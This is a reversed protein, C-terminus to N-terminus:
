KTPTVEVTFAVHAGSVSNDLTVKTTGTTIPSLGPNFQASGDDKGPTFSVITPDEITATWSKFDTTDGTLVIVNDLPVSVTSGDVTKLDAMIPPLQRAGSGPTGGTTAPPTTATTGGPASCAALGLGAGLVLVGALVATPRPLRRTM